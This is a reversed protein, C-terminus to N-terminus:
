TAAFYYDIPITELNWQRTLEEISTVLLTAKGGDFLHSPPFHFTVSGLKESKWNKSNVSLANYLTYTENEKKAFVSTICLVNVGEENDTWSFLTKIEYYASTPKVYLITANGMSYTPYDSNVANLLQDVKAYKEKESEAWFPSNKINEKTPKSKLYKMWLATVSKIDQDTTDVGSNITIRQGFIASAFVFFLTITMIVIHKYM